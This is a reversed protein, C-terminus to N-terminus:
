WYPFAAPISAISWIPVNSPDPLRVVHPQGVLLRSDHRSRFPHLRILRLFFPVSAYVALADIPCPSTSADGNCSAIAYAVTAFPPTQKYAAAPSSPASGRVPRRRQIVVPVHRHRVRRLYAPIQARHHLLRIYVHHPLPQPFHHVGSPPVPAFPRILFTIPPPFSRSPPSSRAHSSPSSLTTQRNRATRGDSTHHHHRHHLAALM